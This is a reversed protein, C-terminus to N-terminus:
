QTLPGTKRLAIERIFSFLNSKLMKQMCYPIEQPGANPKTLQKTKVFM